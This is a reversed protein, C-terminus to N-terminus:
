NKTTDNYHTFTTLKKNFVGFLGKSKYEKILITDGTSCKISNFRYEVGETLSLNAFRHVVLEGCPFIEYCIYAKQSIIRETSCSACLLTLLLLITIKM